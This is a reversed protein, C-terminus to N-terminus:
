VPGRTIATVTELSAFKKITIGSIAPSNKLGNILPGNIYNDVSEEDAFLYLGGSEHEEDNIIWIKWQLGAVDAIAEARDAVMADLEERSVTFKFNIQLIRLSM